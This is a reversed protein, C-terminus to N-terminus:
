KFAQPRDAYGQFMRTAISLPNSHYATKATHLYVQPSSDIYCPPYNNNVPLKGFVHFYTLQKKNSILYRKNRSNSVTTTTVDGNIVDKYINVCRITISCTTARSAVQLGHTGVRWFANLGHPQSHTHFIAFGDLVM